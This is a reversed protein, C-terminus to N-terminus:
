FVEDRCGGQTYNQIPFYNEIIEAIKAFAYKMLKKVAAGQILWYIEIYKIKKTKIFIWSM